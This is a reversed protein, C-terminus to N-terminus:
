PYGPFNGLERVITPTFLAIAYVPVLLGARLLYTALSIIGIKTNCEEGTYIGIQVYTKYDKMAHWVYKWEFHTAMGQKDDKLM